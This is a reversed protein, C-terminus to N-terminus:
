TGARNGSHWGAELVEAELQDKNNGVLAEVLAEALAM